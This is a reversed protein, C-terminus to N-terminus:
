VFIVSQFCVYRVSNSYKYICYYCKNILLLHEKNMIWGNCKVTSDKEEDNDVDEDNNNCMCYMGSKKILELCGRPTCPVICDNLEGRSLKGANIDHLRFCLLAYYHFQLLM